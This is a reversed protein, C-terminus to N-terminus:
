MPDIESLQGVGLSIFQSAFDGKLKRVSCLPRKRNGSSKENCLPANDEKAVLFKVNVFLKAKRPVPTREVLVCTGRDRTVRTEFLDVTIRM